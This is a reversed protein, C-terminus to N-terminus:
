GVLPRLVWKAGDWTFLPQNQWSFHNAIQGAKGFVDTFRLAYLTIIKPL